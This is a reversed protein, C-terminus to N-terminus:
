NTPTGANHVEHFLFTFAFSVQEAIKRQVNTNYSDTKLKWAESVLLLQKVFRELRDLWLVTLEKNFAQSIALCILNMMAKM